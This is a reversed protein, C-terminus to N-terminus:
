EEAPNIVMKSLFKVNELDSYDYQYIGDDGIMMAVNNFPIIDFAQIDKYHAKLRSGIQNHDTADYIKLGDSGDCIFLVGGDIGLGHPNTMQYTNLHKPATLDTIDIVQLQNINGNCVTETRLTVYAYKGEVVVPDCSKVHWFTSVKRPEDVNSIDFIHLGTQSGLFINKGYPFITEVDHSIQTSSKLEVALPDTIDITKLLYQDLAYLRASSITFRAMSGGIGASAGPMVNSAGKVQSSLASYSDSNMIMRGDYYGWGWANVTTRCDDSVTIEEVVKADTMVGMEPNASFRQSSYYNFMDNYRSVEREQGPTSVDIAVLDVYSDAYLTNGYIVLDYNGPINIFSKHVPNSPNRNDIVHVGKGTENIYLYRDKFYIKGANVLDRPEEARVSARLEAFSTYIPKVHYYKNTVTCVESCQIASAALLLIFFKGAVHLASKM